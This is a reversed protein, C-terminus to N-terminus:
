STFIFLISSDSAIAHVTCVHLFPTSAPTCLVLVNGYMERRGERLEDPTNFQSLEQRLQPAHFHVSLCLQTHRHRVNGTAEDRAEYRTHYACRSETNPLPQRGALGCCLRPYPWAPGSCFHTVSHLLCSPSLCFYSKCIHLCAAATSGFCNLVASCM